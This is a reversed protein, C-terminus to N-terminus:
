LMTNNVSHGRRLSEIRGVLDHSECQLGRQWEGVKADWSNLNCNHNVIVLKIVRKVM